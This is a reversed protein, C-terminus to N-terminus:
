RVFESPSLGYETCKITVIVHEDFGDIEVVIKDRVRKVEDKISCVKNHTCTECTTTTKIM